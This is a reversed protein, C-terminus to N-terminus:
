YNNYKKGVGLRGDENSGSGFVHGEKSVAFVHKYTGSPCIIIKKSNISNQNINISTENPEENESSKEKNNILLDLIKDVDNKCQILAQRSKTKNFGESVLFDVLIEIEPKKVKKLTKIQRNQKCKM